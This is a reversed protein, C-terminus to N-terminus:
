RSKFAMVTQQPSTLPSIVPGAALELGACDPDGNCDAVSLLDVATPNCAGELYSSYNARGRNVPGDILRDLTPAAPNSLNFAYIDSGAYVEPIGDGNFDALLPRQDTYDLSSSSTVWLQMPEAATESYNKYVRILRDKCSILLEPIGDSDIDGLTPGPVPYSDFSSPITLYRPSAANSGDGRFIILRSDATLSAVEGVIIEPISDEQPNLNGVAVTAVSSIDANASQWALRATFLPPLSPVSCDQASASYASAAFAATFLCFLRHYM